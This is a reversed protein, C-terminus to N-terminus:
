APVASQALFDLVPLVAEFRELLDHELFIVSRRVAATPLLHEFVQDIGIDLVFRAALRRFFAVVQAAAIRSPAFGPVCRERAKKFGCNTVPRIADARTWSSEVRM